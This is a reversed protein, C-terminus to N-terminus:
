ERVVSDVGVVVSRMGVGVVVRDMQHWEVVVGQYQLVEDVDDLM